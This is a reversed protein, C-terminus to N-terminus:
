LLSFINSPEIDVQEKKANTDNAIYRVAKKFKSLIKSEQFSHVESAFQSTLSQALITKDNFARRKNPSNSITRLIM